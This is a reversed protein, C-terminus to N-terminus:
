RRSLKIKKTLYSAKLDEFTALKQAHASAIFRVKLNLKEIAEYLAEINPSRVPLPGTSDISYHDADFIIGAEPLYALIYHETHPTPGINYLELTRTNDGIIKKGDVFDFNITQGENLSQKVVKQHEKVTVIRAEKDVLEKVGSIHDSHHHTLVAYKIPKNPVSKRVEKIRANAGPLGGINVLHDEFEVFLSNQNQNTVWYIGDSIQRTRMSSDPAKEVMHYHKPLEFYNSITDNIRYDIADFVQNVEGNASYYMHKPLLVGNVKEMDKFFYEVLFSGVLRESKNILSNNKDIYLTIAAGSTMIFSLLHHPRKDFQAEGLYRVTSKQKLLEKVLLTSNSRFGPSTLQSYSASVPTITKRKADIEVSQQSDVLTTNEFASGGGVSNQNFVRVSSNEFDYVIERQGVTKDWPPEPRRSQGARVTTVQYKIVINNLNNLAQKGGYAAVSKEIIANAKASNKRTFNEGSASSTLLAFIMITVAGWFSNKMKRELSFYIVLLDM